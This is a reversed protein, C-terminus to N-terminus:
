RGLWRVFWDEARRGERSFLSMVLGLVATGGRTTMQRLVQFTWDFPYRAIFVLWDWVKQLLQWVPNIIRDVINRLFGVWGTLTDWVNRAFSRVADIANRLVDYVARVVWPIIGNLKNWIPVLFNNWIWTVTNALRQAVVNILGLLYNKANNVLNRAFNFLYAFVDNIRNWISPITYRILTKIQNYASTAFSNIIGAFTRLNDLNWRLWRIAPDVFGWLIDWAWTIATAVFKLVANSVDSFFGGIFRVGDTIWNGLSMTALLPLTFLLLTASATRRAAHVSRAAVRKGFNHLRM